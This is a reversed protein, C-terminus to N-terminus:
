NSVDVAHSPHTVLTEVQPLLRPEDNLVKPVIKLAAKAAVLIESTAKFPNRFKFSLGSEKQVFQCSGLFIAGSGEKHWGSRDGFDQGHVM